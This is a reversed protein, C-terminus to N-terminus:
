FLEISVDGSTSSLSIETGGNGFKGVLKRRSMADISIPMESKIVGSETEISLAGSASSPIIFNIRGSSTEVFYDRPSDLETQITVDGTQTTLDIAGRVQNVYVRASTTKIRVDGEIWRLDIDGTPQRVTIPGFVYEAKVSGANNDITVPSEINSLEIDAAMSNITCTSGYPLRVVYNVLVMKSSGGGLIKKWFSQSRSLMTLYNTEVKVKRSSQDIKIEVHDAVEEAEVRNSARVVKTAEIVLDDTESGIITIHGRTLELNFEIARDTRIIKQYDFTYEDAHATGGILLVTSLCIAKTLLDFKKM